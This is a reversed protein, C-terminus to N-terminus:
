VVLATNVNNSILFFKYLFNNYILVWVAGDLNRCLAVETSSYLTSLLM